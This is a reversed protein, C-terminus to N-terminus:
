ENSQIRDIEAAILAGAIILREKYPKSCMKIWVKKNWNLPLAMLIEHESFNHLILFAAAKSLQFSPNYLVDEKISRFHKDIQEKREKTILTVGPEKYKSPCECIKTGSPAGKPFKFFEGCTECRNPVSHVRCPRKKVM